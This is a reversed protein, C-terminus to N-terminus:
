QLKQFDIVTILHDLGERMGAHYLSDEKVSNRISFCLKKAEEWVERKIAECEHCESTM